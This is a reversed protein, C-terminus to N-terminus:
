GIAYKKLKHYLNTRHIGLIRAAAVKNGKAHELASRICQIEANDREAKLMPKARAVLKADTAAAVLSRPIEDMGITDGTAVKIARELVNELERVNGGWKYRLFVDMAERSITQVETEMRRKLRELLHYALHPIDEVRERLPPIRTGLVNLRYFLDERFSGQAVMREIDKNSAAILRFDVNVKKTDGLGAYGSGFLAHTEGQGHHSHL